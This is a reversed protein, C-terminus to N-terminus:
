AESAGSRCHRSTRTWFKLYEKVGEPGKTNIATELEQTWYIQSGNVVCQGPHKKIWEPRSMAKYDKNSFLMVDRVNDYMIQEVEGMWDEVKKDKPDLARLLPIEEKEACMMRTITKYIEFHLDTMNEFVKRLHPGV